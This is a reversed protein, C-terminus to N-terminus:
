VKHKSVLKEMYKGIIDTEINVSAGVRLKHFTTTKWTHPIIGVTFSSAGVDIVTLSIGNVAISGKEVIYRTFTRPLSISFIHNTGSQRINKLVGTCDIHGHVIHGSLLSTPTTPIELNVANGRRLGLLATRRATETMMDATFSTRDKAAITLCTGDVAISDGIGLKRLLARSARIAIKSRSIQAITGTETIIGTFMIFSRQCHIMYQHLTLFEPPFALSIDWSITDYM